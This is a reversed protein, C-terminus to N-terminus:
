NAATAQQNYSRGGRGRGRGSGRGNGGGNNNGYGRGNNGGGRSYQRRYGGGGGQLAIAGFTDQNLSREQSATMRAQQQQAGEERNSRDTSLMDFFDDKKYKVEKAASSSEGETAVKALVEDKKFINLGAEFDFVSTNDEKASPASGDGVKKERLHLLHAGTGANSSGPERPARPPQERRQQQQQQPQHAAQKPAQQPQRRNQNDSNRNDNHAPPRPPNSQKNGANRNQDPKRAPQAAPAPEPSEHVYLDKIEQGPFTVFPIVAPNSPVKKSEDSM